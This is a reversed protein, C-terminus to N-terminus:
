NGKHHEIKDLKKKINPFAKELRKHVFSKEKKISEYKMKLEEIKQRSDNFNDEMELKQEDLKTKINEKTKIALTMGKYIYEGVDESYSQLNEAIEELLRLQKKIKLIGSVTIIFDAIFSGSALILLLFGIKNQLFSVLVAIMPQVIDFILIAGLGWAISFTLCIYGKINFPEHSYDWWKDHFIKELVFGTIFELM